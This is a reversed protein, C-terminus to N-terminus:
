SAVGLFKKGIGIALRLLVYGAVVMSLNTATQAPLHTYALVMMGVAAAPKTLKPMFAMAVAFGLLIFFSGYGIVGYPFSIALSCLAVVELAVNGVGELLDDHKHKGKDSSFLRRWFVRIMLGLAVLVLAPILLPAIATTTETGEM